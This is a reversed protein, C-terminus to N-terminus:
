AYRAVLEGIGVALVVTGFLFMVVFWNVESIRPKKPMRAWTKTGRASRPWQPLVLGFEGFTKNPQLERRGPSRMRHGSRWLETRGVKKTVLSVIAGAGHGRSPLLRPKRSRESEGGAKAYAPLSLRPSTTM